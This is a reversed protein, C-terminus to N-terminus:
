LPMPTRIQVWPTEWMCYSGFTSILDCIGSDTSAWVQAVSQNIRWFNLTEAGVGSAVSARSRIWPPFGAMSRPPVLRKAVPLIPIWQRLTFSQRRIHGMMPVAKSHSMSGTGLMLPFGPAPHVAPCGREAQALDLCGSSAQAKMFHISLSSNWPKRASFWYRTGDLFLWWVLNKRTGDCNGYWCGWTNALM